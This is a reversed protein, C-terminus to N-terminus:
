ARGKLYTELIQVANLAAGKRVNDACCFLHIKHTDYLDQRIRGVFIEDKDAAISPMPYLEALPTDVVIVGEADELAQYLRTVDPEEETEIIMSVCHAQEVPVRVCTASVQLNPVHLIKQTEQIMKQEEYTFNTSLFRDIHPIVNNHIPYPYFAPEEGRVTRQYDDIGKQGSGSVAQYTTYDVRRVTFLQHVIALPVVSQITSCNPNAIIGNNTFVDENNVEPVVLPVKDDMRYASSNDIVLAGIAVFYPAIERSTAGGASFLAVDIDKDLITLSTAEFITYTTGMFELTTGASNKSAYLYLEDFPINREEILQLFTRGVLGTAGVIALNM